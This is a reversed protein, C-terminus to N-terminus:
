EPGLRIEAAESPDAWLRAQDDPASPRRGRSQASGPLRGAERQHDQDPQRGRALAYALPFLPKNLIRLYIEGIGTPSRNWWGHATPIHWGGGTFETGVLSAVRDLAAATVEFGVPGGIDHVVLLFWDLGLVDVAAAAFRGILL